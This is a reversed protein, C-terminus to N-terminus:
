KRTITVTCHGVVGSLNDQIDKLNNPAPEKLWFWLKKSDVTEAVKNLSVSNTETDGKNNNNTYYGEFFQSYAAEINSTLQGTININSYNTLTVYNTNPVAPDVQGGSYQHTKPNWGTRTVDFSLDGWDVNVKITEPPAEKYYTVEVNLDGAGMTGAVTPIDPTYDAVTPSIVSYSEGYTLNERHVPPVAPPNPDTGSLKYTVTLTYQNKTYVVTTEFDEDMKAGEVAPVKPSYGLVEPCAVSYPQNRKVQGVYDNAVTNGLEDVYHITLKYSNKFYVVNVEVNQAPMTGSVTLTDATFEDLKPSVVKYAKGFQVKEIHPNQPIETSGVPLGTEYKYNIKLTYENATWKATLKHDGATTVKTGESIKENAIYWGDFKYGAKAPVPLARNYGTTNDYGYFNNYTVSIENAPCNGGQADLTVNYKNPKYYVYYTFGADKPTMVGTIAAKDPTYGEINPTTVNYTEDTKYQQHFESAIENTDEYIYIINLQNPTAKYKVKIVLGEEPTSNDVKGKVIYQSSDEPVYGAIAPSKFEYESGFAVTKTVSPAMETGDPKVYNVTVKYDKPVYTGTVWLDRKPMKTKDEGPDWVDWNWVFNYGKYLTPKYSDSFKNASIDAGPQFKDEHLGQEPIISSSGYPAKEYSYHITYTEPLVAAASITVNSTLHKGPIFLKGTENDYSYRSSDLTQGGVSVTITKPLEMKAGVSLRASYDQGPVIIYKDQYDPGDSTVMDTLNYIVQYFVSINADKSISKGSAPGVVNAWKPTVTKPKVGIEIPVKINKEPAYTKNVNAPNLIDVYDDEWTYTTNNEYTYLDQHAIGPEGKIYFVDKTQLQALDPQYKIEVNAFDSKNSDAEAQKKINLVSANGAQTIKMGTSNQGDNFDLVPVDNGGLFGEKPTLPITLKFHGYSCAVYGKSKDLALEPADTDKGVLTKNVTTNIGSVTVTTNQDPQDPTANITPPVKGDVVTIADKQVTFYKSINTAVQYGVLKNEVTTKLEAPNTLEMCTIRAFGNGTGSNPNTKERTNYIHHASQSLTSTNDSMQTSRYNKGAAGGTGHGGIAYKGPKGSYFVDANFNTEYNGEITGLKGPNGYNTGSASAGGGGGGATMFCSQANLSNGKYVRTFGGGQGSWEDRTGDYLGDKGKTGAEITIVDDKNLKIYGTVSGGTGGKGGPGGPNLLGDRGKSGTGGNAGWAQIMYYGTMPVTFTGNVGTSFNYDTNLSNYQVDADLSLEYRKAGNNYNLMKTYSITSDNGFAEQGAKVLNISAGKTFTKETVPEGVYAPTEGKPTVVFSVDYNRTQNAIIKDGPQVNKGSEKDVVKYEGITQIKSYQWNSSMSARVDAYNDEYLDSGLYEQTPDNTTYSKAIVQFDLPTNVAKCQDNIPTTANKTGTSIDINEAIPVNNGGAFGVKPKVVVEMKLESNKADATPKKFSGNTLTFQGNNNAATGTSAKVNVVDFYESVQGKFSIKGSDPKPTDPTTETDGLYTIAVSGGTKSANTGVLQGKQESTLNYNVSDAIFSSGGGGGGVNAAYLLNMMIGGSGGCFGGGGAGGRLNGSGGAGGELSPVTIGKWDNGSDSGIILSHITEGPVDTAGHGVYSFDYGSSQGNSGAFYTGQVDYGAGSLKGSSSNISGGAGGNPIGNQDRFAIGNGAGGGGGGAAIMIYKSTRDAEDVTKLIVGNKDLYKNEYDNPAFKLVYSYGGGGGINYSGVDGHNGGPGNAGGGIDTRVTESGNGGLGYVLTEGQKMDVVGYIYGGAGGAGGKGYRTNQGNCGTGGWLEVLYKGPQVATFYSNKSVEKNDNNDTERLNSVLTYTLTYTGNGNDQLQQIEKYLTGGVDVVGEYKASTNYAAGKTGKGKSQAFALGSPFVTQLVLILVLFLAIVSNRNSILEKHNVYGNKNNVKLEHLSKLSNQILSEFKKM